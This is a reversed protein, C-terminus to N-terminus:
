KIGFWRKFHEILDLFADRFAKKLIELISQPSISVTEETKAEATTDSSENATESESSADTTDTSAPTEQADVSTDEENSSSSSNEEGEALVIEPEKFNKTRALSAGVSLTMAFAFFIGVLVKIKRNKM